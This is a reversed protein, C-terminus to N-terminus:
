RSDKKGVFLIMQRSSGEAAGFGHCDDWVMVKRVCNRDYYWRVMPLVRDFISFM